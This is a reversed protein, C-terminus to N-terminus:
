ILTFNCREDSAHLNEPQKFDNKRIRSASLYRLLLVHWEPLYKWGIRFSIPLCVINDCFVPLKWRIYEDFLTQKKILKITPRFISLISPKWFRQPKNSVFKSLALAQVPQARDSFVLLFNKFTKFSTYYEITPITPLFQCFNTTKFMSRKRKIDFAFSSYGCIFGIKSYITIITLLWLNLM